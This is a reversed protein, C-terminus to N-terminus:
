VFQCAPPIRRTAHHHIVLSFRRNAGWSVERCASCALFIGTSFQNLDGDIQDPLVPIRMQAHIGDGAPRPGVARCKVQMEFALGIQHQINGLLDAAIRLSGKCIELQPRDGQLRNLRPDCRDLANILTM